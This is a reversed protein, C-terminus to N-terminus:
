NESFFFRAYDPPPPLTSCHLTPLISKWETLDYFTIFIASCFVCYHILREDKVEVSVELRRIARLKTGDSARHTYRALVRGGQQLQLLPETLGYSGCGSIVAGVTVCDGAIKWLYQDGDFNWGWEPMSKLLRDGAGITTM